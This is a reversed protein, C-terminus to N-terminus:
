ILLNYTANTFDPAAHFNPAHRLRAVPDPLYTHVIIAPVSPPM